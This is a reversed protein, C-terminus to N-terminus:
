KFLRSFLGGETRKNEAYVLSYINGDLNLEGTELSFKNIHLSDGKVTLEGLETELIVTQEDFGSVDLVGSLSLLKRDELIISHKKKIINKEEAAMFFIGRQRM